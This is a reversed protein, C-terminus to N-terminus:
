AEEQNVLLVLQQQIHTPFRTGSDPHHTSPGLFLQQTETLPFNSLSTLTFPYTYEGRGRPHVTWGGKQRPLQPSRVSQGRLGTRLLFYFSAQTTFATGVQGLKDQRQTQTAVRFRATYKRVHVGRLLAERSTNSPQHRM